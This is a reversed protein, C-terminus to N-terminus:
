HCHVHFKVYLLGVLHQVYRSFTFYPVVDPSGTRQVSGETTFHCCECYFIVLLQMTITEIGAQGFVVGNSDYGNNNNNYTYDDYNDNGDTAPEKSSPM